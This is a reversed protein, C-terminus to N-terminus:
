SRMPWDLHWQFGFTLLGLLERRHNPINQPRTRDSQCPYIMSLSQISMATQLQPGGNRSCELLITRTWFRRHLLAMERM